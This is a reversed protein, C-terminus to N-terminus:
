RVSSASRRQCSDFLVTWQYHWTLARRAEPFLDAEPIGDERLRDVLRNHAKIM